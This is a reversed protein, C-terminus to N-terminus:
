PTGICVPDAVRLTSIANQDDVKFDVRLICTPFFGKTKTCDFNERKAGSVFCQYGESALKQEASWYAIGESLGISALYDDSMKLPTSCGPFCIAVTCATIVCRILRIAAVLPM